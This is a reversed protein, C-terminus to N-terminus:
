FEIQTGREELQRYQWLVSIAQAKCKSSSAITKHICRIPQTVQGSEKLPDELLDQMSKRMALVKHIINDNCAGLVLLHAGQLTMQQIGQRGNMPEIFSIQLEVQLVAAKQATCQFHKAM